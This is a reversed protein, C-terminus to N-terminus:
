VALVVVGEAHGKVLGVARVAVLSRAHIYVPVLVNDAVVPQAGM